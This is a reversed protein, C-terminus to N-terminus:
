AEIGQAANWLDLASQDAIPLIVQTEVGRVIILEDPILARGDADLAVTVYAWADQEALEQTKADVRITVNLEIDYITM